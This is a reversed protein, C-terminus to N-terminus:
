KKNPTGLLFHAGGGGERKSVRSDGWEWGNISNVWFYSGIGNFEM